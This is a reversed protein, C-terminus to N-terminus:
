ILGLHICRAILEVSNKVNAKEMINRRHSKVTEQAIYMRGAIEKNTYGEAILRILELERKTFPAELLEPVKDVPVDINYYSPEGFLGILSLKRNNVTTLHEINTLVNLAKGVGGGEDISLVVSQHLFLQYSGDAVRTRFCYGAKYRTIRDVGIKGYLLQFVLTEARAVFEMDDKHILGLFDDLTVHRTDINFMPGLSESIHSIQHDFFDIVFYVFEGSAFFSGLIEDFRKLPLDTAQQSIQNPVDDWVAYLKKIDPKM